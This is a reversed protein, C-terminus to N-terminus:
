DLYKGTQKKKKEIYGGIWEFGAPTFFSQWRQVGLADLGMKYETYHYPARMWKVCPELKNKADRLLVGFDLCMAVFRNEPIGLSKATSTINKLEGSAHFKNHFDVAPKQAELQQDKAEILKAQTELMPLVTVYQRAMTVVREFAELDAEPSPLIENARSAAAEEVDIFYQRVQRGRDTREMLAIHKACEISVAYDIRPRGGSNEGTQAYVEYDKGEIFDDLRSKAWNSFDKGSGLGQHLERLDVGRAGDKVVLNFSPAAPANLSAAHESITKSKGVAAKVQIEPEDGPVVEDTAPVGSVVNAREIGISDDWEVGMEDWRAQVERACALSYAARNWVVMACAEWDLLYYCSYEPGNGNDAQSVKLFKEDDIGFKILARQIDNFVFEHPMGAIEAIEMSSMTKVPEAPIDPPLDAPVTATVGAKREQDPEAQFLKDVEAIFARDEAERDETWWASRCAEDHLEKWRAMVAKSYKHAYKEVVRWTERLPLNYCREARNGLTTYKDAFKEPDLGHAKLTRRIDDLVNFHSKGTIKSIVLSSMTLITNSAPTESNKVEWYNEIVAGDEKTFWPVLYMFIKRPIEYCENNQNNKGKYVKKWHELDKFEGLVDARRSAYLLLSRKVNSHPKKLLGALHASSLTPGNGTTINLETNM